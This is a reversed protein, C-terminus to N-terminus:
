QSSGFIADFADEDDCCITCTKQPTPSVFHRDCRSCRQMAQKILTISGQNPRADFSAQADLVHPQCVELCVECAVCRDTQFKLAWDHPNQEIEIAGTPCVRFCAECLTCGAKLALQMLPLNEHWSLTFPRDTNQKCVIQLLERQDSVMYAGARIAQAPIQTPSTKSAQDAGSVPKHRFLRGFLHRRSQGTSSKAEASRQIPASREDAVLVPMAWQPQSSQSDQSLKQAAHLSNVADLNLQLQQAGTKGHICQACHGSGHLGVPIRRKAMYALWVAGVAGLCPVLADAQCGSPECALSFTPKTIALRLLDIPKFDASSWAKTNCVSACLGCGQCRDAVLAAGEKSLTIADHPCVDACRRCESYRYRYRTCNSARFDLKM